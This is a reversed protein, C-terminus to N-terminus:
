KRTTSQFQGFEALKDTNILDVGLQRQIRWSQPTDPAAWLRIKRKQAHARTVMDMLRDKEPQPMLGEGRWRFLRTWNDSVLPVLATAPNTELDPLRGDISVLRTLQNSVVAIPREGSLVITIANTRIGASSFRTLMSEYKGLLPDLAAYTPEAETKIDILLLFEPGGPYVSGGNKQVRDRLPNLYLSELTRDPSLKDADHGILLKGGTLYIDAEVACFGRELADFLPRSHEYDNHAFGNTLLFPLEDAGAAPTKPLALSSGLVLAFLFFAPTLLVAPRCQPVSIM